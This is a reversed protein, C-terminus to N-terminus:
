PLQTRALAPGGQPCSTGFCDASGATGTKRHASGCPHSLISRHLRQACANLIASELEILGSIQWLARLNRKLYRIIPIVEIVGVADCQMLLDGLGNKFSFRARRGVRNLLNYSLELRLQTLEFRVDLERSFGRQPCNTARV